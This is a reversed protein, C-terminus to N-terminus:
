LAPERGSSAARELLWELRPRTGARLAQEAADGELLAAEAAFFEEVVELLRTTIDLALAVSPLREPFMTRGRFDLREVPGGIGGELMDLPGGPEVYEGAFARLDQLMARAGQATVEMSQRLDSVSGQEAYFARLIGEIQLHPEEPPRTLWDRLASRGAETIAYRNRHRLGVKEKEVVAWGEKVLRKQERYLHGDSTPWIFRLSRGVQRTLEYGTWSRTALMGLLGFTAPSSSM